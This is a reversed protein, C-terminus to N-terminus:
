ERSADSSLRDAEALGEDTLTAGFGCYNILGRQELRVLARTLSAHCSSYRKEGIRDRRFRCDYPRPISVEPTQEWGFCSTLLDFRYVDVEHEPMGGLLRNQRAHLLITRTLQSHGRGM